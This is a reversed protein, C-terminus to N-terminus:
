CFCLLSSLCSRGRQSSHTRIRGEKSADELTGACSPGGGPFGRATARASPEERREDEEGQGWYLVPYETEEAWGGEAGWRQTWGDGLLTCSSSIIDSDGEDSDSFGHDAVLSGEDVSDEINELPSERFVCGEPSDKSFMTSFLFSPTFPRM